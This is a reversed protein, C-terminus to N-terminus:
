QNTYVLFLFLSKGLFPLQKKSVTKYQLLFDKMKKLELTAKESDVNNGQISRRIELPIWFDYWKNIVQSDTINSADLAGELNGILGFFDKNKGDLYHQIQDIMSQWLQKQHNTMTLRQSTLITKDM